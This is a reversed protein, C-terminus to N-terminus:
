PCGAFWANLFDFIDQTSLAGSGDFDARCSGGTPIHCAGVLTLRFLLNGHCDSALGSYAAPNAGGTGNPAITQNSSAALSFDWLARFAADYPVHQWGTQGSCNSSVAIYYDGASLPFGPPPVLNTDNASTNNIGLVGRGQSDFLFLKAGEAGGYYHTMTATVRFAAPDCIRIKFIHRATSGTAGLITSLPGSGEVAQALAPTYGAYYGHYWENWLTTPVQGTRLRLRTTGTGSFSTTVVFAPNPSSCFNGPYGLLVLYYVGASLYPRQFGVDLCNTADHLEENWGTDLRGATWGAGDEGLRLGSGGGFAIAAASASNSASPGGGSYDDTAVRNMYENYLGLESNFTARPTDINLWSDQTIDTTLRFKFWLNQGNTISLNPIDITQNAGLDGLDTVTVGAPPQPPAPAQQGSSVLPMTLALVAAVVFGCIHAPSFPFRM